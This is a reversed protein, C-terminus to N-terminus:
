TIQCGFPLAPNKLGKPVRVGNKPLLIVRIRLLKAGVGMHPDSLTLISGVSDRERKERTGGDTGNKTQDETREDSSQTQVHISM